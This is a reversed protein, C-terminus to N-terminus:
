MEILTDFDSHSGIPFTQMTCYDTGSYPDSDPDLLIFLPKNGGVSVSEWM